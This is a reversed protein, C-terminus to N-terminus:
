GQRSPRCWVVSGAIPIMSGLVSGADASGADAGAGAGAGSAVAGAGDGSGSWLTGAGIGAGREVGSFSCRYSMSTIRSTAEQATMRPWTEAVKRVATSRSSDLPREAYQIPCMPSAILWNATGINKAMAPQATSIPAGGLFLERIHCRILRM